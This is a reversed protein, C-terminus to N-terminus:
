PFGDTSRRAGAWRPSTRRRAPRAHAVSARSRLTDTTSCSSPSRGTSWISAARASCTNSFRIALAMWCAGAPEVTRSWAPSSGALGSRTRQVTSSSPGPSSGSSWDRIQKSSALGIRIADFDNIDIM